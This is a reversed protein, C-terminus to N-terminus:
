RRGKRRRHRRPRVHRNGSVEMTAPTLPLTWSRLPFRVHYGGSRLVVWDGEELMPVPLSSFSAEFGLVAQRELVDRARERCDAESQLDTDLFVSLYRPEGNRSLSGPSMPNRRPLKAIAFVRKKSGKPKRGNVRVWNRTGLVDYAVSPQEPLWKDTFTFVPDKNMRRVTLRGRGDYFVHRQLPSYDLLGKPRLGKAREDKDKAKRSASHEIRVGELGQQGVIVRWPEAEPAVMYPLPLKWTMDPVTFRSEGMKRAVSKIADDLDTGPRSRSDRRRWIRISADFEGEGASRGDGGAGLARADDGPGLFVPIDVWGLEPDYVGYRVRVFRDAFLAGQAATDPYFRLKRRPDLLTLRPVRSVDGTADFQISGDLVNSHPSTLSGKIQEESNM